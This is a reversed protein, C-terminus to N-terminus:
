LKKNNIDKKNKIWDKIDFEKKEQGNIIRKPKWQKGKISAKDYSLEEIGDEKLLTKIEEEEAEYIVMGEALHSGKLKKGNAFNYCIHRAHQANYSKPYVFHTMLDNIIVKPKIILIKKIKM